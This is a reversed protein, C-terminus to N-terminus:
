VFKTSNRVRRCSLHVSHVHPQRGTCFSVARCGATQWRVGRLPQRVGPFLPRHGTTPQGGLRHGRLRQADRQSKWAREWGLCPGARRAKPPPQQPALELPPDLRLPGGRPFGARDWSCLPQCAWGERRAAGRERGQVRVRVSVGRLIWLM